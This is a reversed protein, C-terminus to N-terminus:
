TCRRVPPAPKSQAALLEARLRKTEEEARRMEDQAKQLEAIQKAEQAKREVEFQRAAERQAEEARLRDIMQQATSAFVGNPFRDLYRKLAAPDSTSRVSEWLAM